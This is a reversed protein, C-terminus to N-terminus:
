TIWEKLEIEVRPEYGFYKEAVVRMIIKDNSIVGALQLCDSPGAICNDLDLENAHNKFYFRVIMMLPQDLSKKFGWARRLSQVAVAEWGLYQASSILKSFRGCKVIRKSNKKSVVRGLIVASFLVESGSSPSLSKPRPESGKNSTKSKNAPTSLGDGLKTQRKM